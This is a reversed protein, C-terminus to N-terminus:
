RWVRHARFSVFLLLQNTVVVWLDAEGHLPLKRVEEQLEEGEQPAKLPMLHHEDSCREKTM